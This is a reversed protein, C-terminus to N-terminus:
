SFCYESNTANLLAAGPITLHLPTKLSKKTKIIPMLTGARTGNCYLSKLLRTM